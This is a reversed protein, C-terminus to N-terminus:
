GAKHFLYHVISSIGDEKPEDLELMDYTGEDDDFLVRAIASCAAYFSLMEDRVEQFAYKAITCRAYNERQLIALAVAADVAARGEDLKAADYGLTEIAVAIVSNTTANEIVISARLLREDVTFYLSGTKPSEEVTEETSEEENAEDLPTDLIENDQTM